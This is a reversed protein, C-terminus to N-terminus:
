RSTSYFTHAYLDVDYGFANRFVFVSYFVSTLRYMTQFSPMHRYTYVYIHTYKDCVQVELLSPSMFVIHGAIDNKKDTDTKTQIQRQETTMFVFMASELSTGTM